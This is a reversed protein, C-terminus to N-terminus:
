LCTQHTFIADIFADVIEFVYQKKEQIDVFFFPRVFKIAAAVYAPIDTMQVGDVFTAKLEEIFLALNTHNAPQAQASPLMPTLPTLISSLIDVLLPMLAKLVPDTYDDPLWPTDTIAIFHHLVTLVHEKKQEPPLHEYQQLYHYTDVTLQSFCHWDFGQSFCQQYNEAIKFLEEQSPALAVDRYLPFFDPHLLHPQHHFSHYEVVPVPLDLM